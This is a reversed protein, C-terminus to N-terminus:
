CNYELIKTKVSFDKASIKITNLKNIVLNREQASMKDLKKHHIQLTYNCIENNITKTLTVGAYEFGMDNLKSKIDDVYQDEIKNYYDNRINLKKSNQGKVTSSICLVTVLILVITSILFSYRKM